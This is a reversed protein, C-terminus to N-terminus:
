CLYALRNLNTPTDVIEVEPANTAKLKMDATLTYAIGGLTFLKTEGTEPAWPMKFAIEAVKGSTNFTKAATASGYFRAEEINYWGNTVRDTPNGM